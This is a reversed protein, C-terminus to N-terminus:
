ASLSADLMESDSSLESKESANEELLLLMEPGQHELMKMWDADAGTTSPQSFIDRLMMVKSSALFHCHVQVGKFIEPTMNPGSYQLEKRRQSQM